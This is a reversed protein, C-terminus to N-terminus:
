PRSEGIPAILAPQRIITRKLCDPSLRHSWAIPAAIEFTQTEIWDRFDDPIQKPKM